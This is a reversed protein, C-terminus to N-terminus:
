RHEFPTRSSHECGGGKLAPPFSCSFPRARSAKFRGILTSCRPSAVFPSWALARVFIRDPAHTKFIYAFAGYVAASGLFGVLLQFIPRFGLHEEQQPDKGRLIRFLPLVKHWVYPACILSFVVIEMRTVLEDPSKAADLGFIREILYVFFIAVALSIAVELLRQYYTQKRQQRKPPM